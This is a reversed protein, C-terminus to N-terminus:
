AHVPKKSVGPVLQSISNAHALGPVFRSLKASTHRFNWSASLGVVDVQGTEGVIAATQVSVSKIVFRRFTAALVDTPESL